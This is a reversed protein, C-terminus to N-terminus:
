RTYVTNTLRGQVPNGGERHQDIKSGRHQDIKSGGKGGVKKKASGQAAYAAGSRYSTARARLARGFKSALSPVPRTLARLPPSPCIM